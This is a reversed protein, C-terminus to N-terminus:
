RSSFKYLKDGRRVLENVPMSFLSTKQVKNVNKENERFEKAKQEVVGTTPGIILIDEGTLLEEGSEFIIEAVKIKSFYNTVKGLYVKTRTAKTGHVNSWEGLREGLYYGNWFGRNFVTVL